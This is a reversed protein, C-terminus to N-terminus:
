KELYKDFTRKLNHEDNPFKMVPSYMEYALRRNEKEAEIAKERRPDYMVHKPTFNEEKLVM